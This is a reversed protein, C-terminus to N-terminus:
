LQTATPSQELKIGISSAFAEVVEAGKPNLRPFHPNLMTWMRMDLLLAECAARGMSRWQEKGDLSLQEWPFGNHGISEWMAKAVKETMNEPM